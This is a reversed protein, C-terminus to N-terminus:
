HTGTRVNFNGQARAARRAKRLAWALISNSCFRLFVACNARGLLRPCPGKRRPKAWRAWFWGSVRLAEDVRGSDAGRQAGSGQATPRWEGLLVTRQGTACDKRVRGVACNFQDSQYLPLPYECKAPNDVVDLGPAKKLAALAAEVTVPTEFEASVAVSHARYVPVRVCTVSARFAPHHMIKRGENEMKM